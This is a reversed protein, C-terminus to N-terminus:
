ENPRAALQAELRELRARLEANESRLTQVDHELAASREAAQHELAAIQEDKESRLERLAEVVIGEFGIVTLTKYGRSDVGVWEPFVPEVEQAILGPYTGAMNGQSAPDIWQYSAGRLRLLKELCDRLTQVNTKLRADSSVTWTNSTPKAASNQSLQLQFRSSDSGAGIGFRENVFVRGNDFYGSYGNASSSTGYIAVHGLGAVGPALNGLSDALGEGYVGAGEGRATGWVGYRKQLPPDVPNNTGQNIGRIAASADGSSASTLEGLVASAGSATSSNLAHACRDGNAAVILRADPCCTGIGVNGSHYIGWGDTTWQGASTQTSGDPFQFGGSTSRIVGVVDLPHQPNLTGIGVNGGSENLV